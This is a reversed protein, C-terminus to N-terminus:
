VQLTYLECNRLHKDGGIFERLMTSHGYVIVVKEPQEMLWRRFQGVREQVCASECKCMFTILFPSMLIELGQLSASM